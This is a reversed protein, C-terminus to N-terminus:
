NSPTRHTSALDLMDQFVGRLVDNVILDSNLRDETEFYDDLMGTPLADFGDLHKQLCSMLAEDFERCVDMLSSFLRRKCAEPMRSAWQRMLSKIDIDDLSGSKYDALQRLNDCSAAPDIIAKAAHRRPM